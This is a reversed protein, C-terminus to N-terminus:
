IFLDKLFEPRDQPLEWVSGFTVLIGGTPECRLSDKEDNSWNKSKHRKSTTLFVSLPFDGYAAADALIAELHELEEREESNEPLDACLLVTLKSRPYKVYDDIHVLFDVLLDIEGDEFFQNGHKGNIPNRFQITVKPPYSNENEYEDHHENLSAGPPDLSFIPSPMESPKCKRSQKATLCYTNSKSPYKQKRSLRAHSPPQQLSTHGKQQKSNHNISFLRQRGWRLDSSARGNRPITITSPITSTTDNDEKSRKGAEEIDGVHGSQDIEWNYSCQDKNTRGRSDKNQNCCYAKLFWFSLGVALIAIAVMLLSGVVRGVSVSLNRTTTETITM